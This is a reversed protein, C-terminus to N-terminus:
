TAVIIKSTYYVFNQGSGVKEMGLDNMSFTMSGPSTIEDTRTIYHSAAVGRPPRSPM